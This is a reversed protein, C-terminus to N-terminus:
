GGEWGKFGTLTATLTPHHYVEYVTEMGLLQDIKKQIAAREPSQLWNEWSALSDWSSVVLYEPIDLRRLTESSVYGPCAVVKSRLQNILGMLKEEKEEQVKRRILVKVSM